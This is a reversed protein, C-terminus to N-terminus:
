AFALLTLSRHRSLQLVLVIPYRTHVVASDLLRLPFSCYVRLLKRALPQSPFCGTLLRVVVEMWGVLVGADLV